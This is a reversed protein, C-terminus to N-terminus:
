IDLGRDGVRVQLRTFLTQLLVIERVMYVCDIAQM